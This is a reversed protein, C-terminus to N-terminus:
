MGLRYLTGIRCIARATGSVWMVKNFSLASEWTVVLCLGLLTGPTGLNGRRKGYLRMRFTDMQWGLMQLFGSRRGGSTGLSSVWLVDM